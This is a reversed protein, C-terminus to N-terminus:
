QWGNKSKTTADYLHRELQKLRWLALVLGQIEPSANSLGALQSQIAKIAWEPDTRLFPRDGEDVSADYAVLPALEKGDLSPKWGTSSAM